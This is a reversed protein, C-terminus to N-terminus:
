KLNFTIKLEAFSISTDAVGGNGGIACIIQGKSATFNCTVSTYSGNGAANSHTVINSENVLTTGDANFLAIKGQSNRHSGYLRLYCTYTGPYIVTYKFKGSYTTNNVMNKNTVRYYESIASPAYQYM